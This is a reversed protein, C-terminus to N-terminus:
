SNGPPSGQLVQWFRVVQTRAAEETGANLIIRNARKRKLDLPEQAEERCRFEEDSWGRARARSIRLDRPADVYWIEDCLKDWGAKEMVPADLVVARRGSERFRTIERQLRERILPHTLRELAALEPPGDPPPAFVIAALAKRDVQGADNLVGEGWRARVEDIVEPIELVEHGARDGDLLGAGLEVLQKAVMSKGSAIGGLLGIVKMPSLPSASM